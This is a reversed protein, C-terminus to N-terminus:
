GKGRGRLKVRVALVPVQLPAAGRWRCQELAVEPIARDRVGIGM